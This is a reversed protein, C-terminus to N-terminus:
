ETVTFMVFKFDLYFYFSYLSAYVRGASTGAAGRHVVYAHHRTCLRLEVLPKQVFLDYVREQLKVVAPWASSVRGLQCSGDPHLHTAVAKAALHHRAKTVGTDTM